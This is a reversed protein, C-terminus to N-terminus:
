RSLKYINRVESTHCSLLTWLSLLSAYENLFLLYNFKLFVSDIIKENNGYIKLLYVSDICIDKYKWEKPNVIRKKSWNELRVEKKLESLDM